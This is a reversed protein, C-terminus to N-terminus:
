RIRRLRAFIFAGVALIAGGVMSIIMIGDNTKPNDEDDGPDGEPDTIGQITFTIEDTTTTNGVGDYIKAYAVYNGPALDRFIHTKSLDQGTVSDSEGSVTETEFAFGDAGELKYYWEIKAIGSAADDVVISLTISNDVPEEATIQEEIVPPVTDIKSVTFSEHAIQGSENKYWVTYTGNASITITDSLTKSPATLENWASEAPETTSNGEVLARHTITSAESEVAVVVKSTKAWTSPVQVSNISVNDSVTDEEIEFTIEGSSVSNGAVDYVTAYAVYNGVGLGSLTYTKTTAATAGDSYTSTKTTYSSASTLKYKWEIKAIGSANDSVTVSLKASSSTLNSATLNQATPATKDIKDVTFTKSAKKSGNKYWVTYTGNASVTFTDNLSLGPTAVAAWQSDTPETTSSGSIVARHTINTDISSVAVTIQADNKTWNSPTTINGITVNDAPKVIEFTIEGSSVSNGAVDYVTAYVM